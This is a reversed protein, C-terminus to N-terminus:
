KPWLRACFILSADEMSMKLAHQYVVKEALGIKHSKYVNCWRGIKTQRHLNLTKRMKNKTHDKIVYDTNTKLSMSCRAQGTM